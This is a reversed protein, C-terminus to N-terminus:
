DGEGVVPAADPEHHVQPLHPHPVHPHALAQLTKPARERFTIHHNITFNWAYSIGTAAAYVACYVFLNSKASVGFYRTAVGLVATHLILGGLSILAFQSGQHLVNRREVHRYNWVRNWFYNNVIGAGYAIPNAIIVRWGLRQNLFTFLVFSIATGTLGIMGFRIAQWSISPARRQTSAHSVAV